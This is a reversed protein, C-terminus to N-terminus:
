GVAATYTVVITAAGTTAATGTQAYSVYIITDAALPGAVAIPVVTDVRAAATVSTANIYNTGTPTTGVSVTNTTTANFATTAYVSTKDLVAGAPLTGVAVGAAVGPTNYAINLSIQHIQQTHLKRAPAPM